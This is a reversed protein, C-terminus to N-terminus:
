HGNSHEGGVGESPRIAREPRSHSRGFAAPVLTSGLKVISSGAKRLEIEEPSLPRAVISKSVSAAPDIIDTLLEKLLPDIKMLKDLGGVKASYVDDFLDTVKKALAEHPDTMFYSRVAADVDSAKAGRRSTSRIMYEKDGYVVTGLPNEAIYAAIKTKVEDICNQTVKLVSDLFTLMGGNDTGMLIKEQMAITLNVRSQRHAICTTSIPCWKCGDGPTMPWQGAADYAVMDEWNERLRQELAADEDPDTVWDHSKGLNVYGLSYRIKEYQPWIKRAAWAYMLPQIESQWYAMTDHGRNTKHDVILLSGDSLECVYDMTGKLPIGVGELEVRWEYEIGVLKTAPIGLIADIYTHLNNAEEDPIQMWAKTVAAEDVATDPLNGSWRTNLMTEIIDHAADGINSFKTRKEKVEPRLYKLAWTHPCAEFDRFGTTRLVPLEMLRGIGTKTGLLLASKGM